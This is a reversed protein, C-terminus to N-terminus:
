GVGDLSQRDSGEVLAARIYEARYSKRRARARADSGGGDSSAYGEKTWDRIEVEVDPTASPMPSTSTPGLSASTNMVDEVTDAIAEVDVNVDAGAEASVETM